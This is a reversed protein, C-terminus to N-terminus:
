ELSYNNPKFGLYWICYDKKHKDGHKAKRKKKYWIYWPKTSSLTLCAGCSLLM